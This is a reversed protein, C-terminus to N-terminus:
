REEVCVCECVSMRVLAGGQLLDDLGDALQHGIGVQVAIGICANAHLYM